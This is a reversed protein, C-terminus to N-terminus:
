AGEAARGKSLPLLPGGEKLARPLADAKAAALKQYNYWCAGLFAVFYGALQLPIAPSRCPFPPPVPCLPLTFLLHSTTLCLPPPTVRLTDPWSSPSPPPGVPPCTPWGDFLCRPNSCVVHPRLAIGMAM